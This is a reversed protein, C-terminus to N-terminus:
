EHQAEAEEAVGKQVTEGYYLTPIYQSTENETPLYIDEVEERFYSLM